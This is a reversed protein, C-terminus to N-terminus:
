ICHGTGLTHKKLRIGGNDFAVAVVAAVDVIRGPQEVKPIGEIEQRPFRNHNDGVLWILHSGPPLVASGKLIASEELAFIFFGQDDHDLVSTGVLDEPTYTLM